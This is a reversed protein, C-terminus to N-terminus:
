HFRSAPSLPMASRRPCCWRQPPRRAGRAVSGCCVSNCCCSSTLASGTRARELAKHSDPFHMQMLAEGIGLLGESAILDAPLPDIVRSAFGDLAGKIIRRLWRGSVGETLPYVPVLRGTHLLDRQLPEWEPSTFLLRGLYEDVKGSVVIEMGPRFRKELYPQNFWRAEITGTGDSLAVRV